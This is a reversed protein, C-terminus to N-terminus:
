KNKKPRGRRKPKEKNVIDKNYDVQPAGGDQEMKNDTTPMKHVPQKGPIMNESAGEADEDTLEHAFGENPDYVIKNNPAVTQAVNNPCNNVKQIHRVLTGPITVINYYRGGGMDIGIDFSQPTAEPSGQNFATQNIGAVKIIADGSNEQDILNSLMEKENDALGTFAADNKFSDKFKIQDGVLLGGIKFRTLLSEVLIDFESNM